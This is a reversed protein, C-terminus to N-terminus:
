TRGPIVASLHMGINVLANLLGFVAVARLLWEHASFKVSRYVALQALICTNCGVAAALAVLLAVIRAVYDYDRSESSGSLTRNDQTQQSFNECARTVALEM